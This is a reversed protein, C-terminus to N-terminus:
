GDEDAVVDSMKRTVIKGEGLPAAPPSGVRMM